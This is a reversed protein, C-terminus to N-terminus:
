DQPRSAFKSEYEGVTYLRQVTALRRRELEALQDEKVAVVLAESERQWVDLGLPMQLLREIDTGPMPTLRVVWPTNHDQADTM